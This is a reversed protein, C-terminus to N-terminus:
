NLHLLVKHLLKGGVALKKVLIRLQDRVYFHQNPLGEQLSRLVIALILNRALYCLIAHTVPVKFRSEWSRLRDRKSEFVQPSELHM